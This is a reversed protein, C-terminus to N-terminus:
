KKLLMLSNLQQEETILDMNQWHPHAKMQENLIIDSNNKTTVYPRNDNKSPTVILAKNYKDYRFTSWIYHNLENEKDLYFDGNYERFRTHASENEIIKFFKDEGEFNVKYMFFSNSYNNNKNELRNEIRVILIKLEQQTYLIFNPDGNRGKNKNSIYLPTQYLKGDGQTYIGTNRQKYLTPARLRM